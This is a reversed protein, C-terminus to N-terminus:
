AKEEVKDPTQTPDVPAAEVSDAAIEDPRTQESSQRLLQYIVTNSCYFFSVTYAGILSTLFFSWVWIMGAAAKGTFGLGGDWNFTYLLQGLRPRPMIAHWRSSEDAMQAFVGMDVLHHTISMTLYIVGGLFLYGVAGYVLALISYFLWHWPRAVLYGFCRSVADFSDTGEM